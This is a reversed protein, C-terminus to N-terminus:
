SIVRGCFNVSVEFETFYKHRPAGLLDDAVYLQDSGSGIPLDFGDGHELLLTTLTDANGEDM